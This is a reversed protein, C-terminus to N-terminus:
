VIIPKTYDFNKFAIGKGPHQGSLVIRKNSLNERMKNRNTFQSHFFIINDIMEEDDVPFYTRSNQKLAGQDSKQYDSKQGNSKSLILRTDNETWKGSRWNKEQLTYEYEYDPPNFAFTYNSAHITKCDIVKGINYTSDKFLLLVESKSPNLHSIYFRSLTNLNKEGSIREKDSHAIADLYIDDIETKRLGFLDLRNILDFDEFGYGEMDEDYGGISMFDSKRCCIRGLLDPQKTNGRSSLFINSDRDFSSILFSAFGKGTFNDADLNCVFESEALAFAMNRSHSRKFYLPENTRYYSLRGSLIHHEMNEHIWHELGDTSNYDLVVFQLADCDGNDTINKPLTVKLHHLRNKVVTCFSIKFRANM